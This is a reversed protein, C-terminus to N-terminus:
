HSCRTPRKYRVHVENEMAVAVYLGVSRTLQHEAVHGMEHAVVAAAYATAIGRECVRGAGSYNRWVSPYRFVGFDARDIRIDFSGGGRDVVQSGGTAFFMNHRESARVLSNFLLGNSTFTPGAARVDKACQKDDLEFETNTADKTHQVLEKIEHDKGAFCVKLGFPDSYSVPNNAAYGYLHM